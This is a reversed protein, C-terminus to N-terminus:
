KNYVAKFKFSDKNQTISFVGKQYNAFFFCSPGAGWHPGCILLFVDDTSTCKNKSYSPAFEPNVSEIVVRLQDSM